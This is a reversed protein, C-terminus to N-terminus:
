QLFMMYDSIWIVKGDACARSVGGSLLTRFVGRKSSIEQIESYDGKAEEDWYADTSSDLEPGAQM